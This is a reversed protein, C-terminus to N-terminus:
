KAWLYSIVRFLFNLVSNSRTTDLLMARNDLIHPKEGKQGMHRKATFAGPRFGNISVSPLPKKDGVNSLVKNLYVTSYVETIHVQSRQMLQVPILLLLEFELCMRFGCDMNGSLQVLDQGVCSRM